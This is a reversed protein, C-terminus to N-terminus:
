HEVLLGTFLVVAEEDTGLMSKKVEVEATHSDIAYCHTAKATTYGTCGPRALSMVQPSVTKRSPLKPPSGSFMSEGNRGRVKMDFRVFIQTTPALPTLRVGCILDRSNMSVSEIEELEYAQSVGLVAEFLRQDGKRADDVRNGSTFLEGFLM